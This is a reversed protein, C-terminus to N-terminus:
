RDDGGGCSTCLWFYTILYLWFYMIHVDPVTLSKIQYSKLPRSLQQIELISHM